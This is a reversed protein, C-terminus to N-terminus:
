PKAARIRPRSRSQAVVRRDDKEYLVKGRSLVDKLFSDGEALRWKVERPTRVILDMPFPPCLAWRIKFGQDLQNRAPMIILLDVDSDAHPAGYAFSGFLIIKDPHSKAAIARAYYRIVRMPIDPADNLRTPPFPFEFQPTKAM